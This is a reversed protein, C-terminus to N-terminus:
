ILHLKFIHCFDCFYREHKSLNKEEFFNGPLFVQCELHYFYVSGRQCSRGGNAVYGGSIVMYSGVLTAQHFVLQSSPVRVNSGYQPSIATWVQEQINYFFLYHAASSVRFGGFVVLSHLPRYYIASHGATAVVLDLDSNKPRETRWSAM